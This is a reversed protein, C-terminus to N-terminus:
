TGLELVYFSDGFVVALWILFSIFGNLAMLLLIQRLLWVRDAGWSLLALSSTLLPIFIAPLLLNEVPFEFNLLILTPFM